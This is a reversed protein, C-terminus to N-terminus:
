RSSSAAKILRDNQFILDSPTILYPNIWKVAGDRAFYVGFTKDLSPNKLYLVLVPGIDIIFVPTSVVLGAFFRARGEADADRIASFIQKAGNETTFSRLREYDGTSIVSQIDRFRTLVEFYTNGLPSKSNIPIARVRLESPAFDQAGGDPM